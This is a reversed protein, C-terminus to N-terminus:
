CVKYRSLFFIVYIMHLYSIPIKIRRGKKMGLWAHVIQSIKMLFGFFDFEVVLADGVHTWSRGVFTTGGKDLFFWRTRSPRFGWGSSCIRWFARRSRIWGSFLWHCSPPRYPRQWVTHGPVAESGQPLTRASPTWPWRTSTRSSLGSLAPDPLSSSKGGSKGGGSSCGPCCTRCWPDLPRSSSATTAPTPRCCRKSRGAAAPWRPEWEARSRRCFPDPARASPFNGSPVRSRWPRWAPWDSVSWVPPTCSSHAPEFDSLPTINIIKM